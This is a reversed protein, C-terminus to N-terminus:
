IMFLPFEVGSGYYTIDFNNHGPIHKGQQGINIYKSIFKGDSHASSM